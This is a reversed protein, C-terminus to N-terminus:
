QQKEDSQHFRPNGPWDLYWFGKEKLEKVILRKAKELVKTFEKEM